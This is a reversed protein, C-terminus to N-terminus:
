SSYPSAVLSADVELNMNDTLRFAMSNTYTSLAIGNGGFASYSMNVSHNMQFNNPNLFNSLFGSPSYNTIGDMITPSLDKDKFQALSLSSFLLSLIVFRKIM